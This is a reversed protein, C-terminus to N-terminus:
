SMGTTSVFVTSEGCYITSVPVKPHEDYGLLVSRVMLEVTKDEM